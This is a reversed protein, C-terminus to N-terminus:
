RILLNGARRGPDAKQVWVHLGVDEDRGLDVEERGQGADVPDVHGSFQAISSKKWM